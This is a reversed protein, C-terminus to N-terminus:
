RPPRTREMSRSGSAAARQRVFRRAAPSSSQDLQDLGVRQVDKMLELVDEVNNEDVGLLRLVLVVKSMRPLPDLGAPEYDRVVHEGM